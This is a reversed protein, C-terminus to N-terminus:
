IHVNMFSASFCMTLKFLYLKSLKLFLFYKFYKRRWMCVWESKKSLWRVEAACRFMVGCSSTVYKTQLFFLKVVQKTGHSYRVYLTLSPTSISQTNRRFLKVKEDKSCYDKFKLELEAEKLFFFSVRPCSRQKFLRPWVLWVHNNEATVRTEKGRSVKQSLWGAFREM